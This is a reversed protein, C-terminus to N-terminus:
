PRGDEFEEDALLSNLTEYLNGDDDTKTVLVEASVIANELKDIRKLLVDIVEDQYRCRDEMFSQLWMVRKQLLGFALRWQTADAKEVLTGYPTPELVKIKAAASGPKDNKM